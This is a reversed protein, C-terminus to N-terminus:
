INFDFKHMNIEAEKTMAWIHPTILVNEMELFDMKPDNPEEEWVDAVYSAEPNEFLFELWKNENIIWGRSTNILMVNKKLLKIEKQWILNKTSDLLPVNISIIDSKKLLEKKDKVFTIEWFKEMDEKSIFPDFVYFENIWFGKLIKFLSKWINWFGILWFSNWNLNSWMYFERNEVWSFEIFLHRKLYLIWSIILEAVSQSNAWPTNVIKIGRKSCEKEDINDTWVGSVAVFKLNKYKDLVKKELKFFTTIIVADIEDSNVDNELTFIKNEPKLYELHELKIEPFWELCLINM